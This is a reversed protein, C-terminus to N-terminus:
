SYPEAASQRRAALGFGYLDGVGDFEILDLDQEALFTQLQERASPQMPIGSRIQEGYTLWMGFPILKGIFRFPPEAKVLEAAFYDFALRSGDALGATTKLTDIVAAEELYMTVGEWILCTPVNPDFGESRLADLWSTTNFDVGVFSIHSTDLGARRAADLKAAHTSPADVEFVKGQWDKPLAWARTDWGAGLIVVQAVDKLAQNLSTDFFITRVVMMSMLSAPRSAPFRFMVPQYGSIAVALRTPGMMLGWILPSMGPLAGALKKAAPDPRTGMEHYLVRNMLPEYATGSIGRPRNVLLIVGMFLVVGLLTVPYLLLEILIFLLIKM